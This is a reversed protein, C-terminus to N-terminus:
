KKPRWDWPRYLLNLKELLDDLMWEPYEDRIPVTITEGNPAKWVQTLKSAFDTKELGAKELEREFEDRPFAVRSAM